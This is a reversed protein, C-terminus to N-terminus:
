PTRSQQFISFATYYCAQFHHQTKVNGIGLSIKASLILLAAIALLIYMFMRIKKSLGEQSKENYFLAVGADIAALILAIVLSLASLALLIIECFTKSQGIASTAYGVMALITAVLLSKMGQIRSLM